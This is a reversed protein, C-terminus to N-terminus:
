EFNKEFTIHRKTERAGISRLLKMMRPNFDGIWALESSVLHRDNRFVEFIKMMMGTTLGLGQYEPIVGFVLGRIKTTRVVSKYFLFKLKGWWNLNGNLHKLIENVEVISVYFAVPKGKSYTFWILDERLVPKMSKMMKLVQATSLPVFHEHQKWAGNYVEVFDAAYKPLNNKEIHRIEFVPNAFVKQALPAIKDLNFLKPSIEQTSQVIGETFGYEKFFSQYYVPNYNEQYSPNHFGAVLLGWFKDREGYNIPALVRQVGKHLLWEKGTDFLLRAVEYDQVAEFFGFGGVGEANVFAAMRGIYDDGDEVMWIGVEDPAKNDWLIKQIEQQIHPIYVQDGRYVLEPVKLFTKFLKKTTVPVIRM